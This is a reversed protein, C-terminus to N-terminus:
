AERLPHKTKGHTGNNLDKLRLHNQYGTITINKYRSLTKNQSKYTSFFLEDEFRKQANVANRREFLSTFEFILFTEDKNYKHHLICPTVWFIRGTVQTKSRSPM